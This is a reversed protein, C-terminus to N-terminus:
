CINERVCMYINGERKEKQTLQRKEKIFFVQREEGFITNDRPGNEGYCIGYRFTQRILYIVSSINIFLREEIFRSKHTEPLLISNM